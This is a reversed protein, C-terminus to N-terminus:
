SASVSRQSNWALLDPSGLENLEQFWPPLLSDVGWLKRQGVYAHQPVYMAANVCMAPVHM